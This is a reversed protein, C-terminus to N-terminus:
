RKDVEGIMCLYYSYGLMWKLKVKEDLCINSDLISKAQSFALGAKGNYGLSLHAQGIQILILVSDIIFFKLIKYILCMFSYMYCLFFIKKKLLCGSYIENSRHRVGNNLRLMMKLTVIHYIPQNSVGFFNELM